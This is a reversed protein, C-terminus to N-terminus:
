NQLKYKDVIKSHAAIINFYFNLSPRKEMGCVEPSTAERLIYQTVEM